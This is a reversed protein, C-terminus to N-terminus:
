CVGWSGGFGSDLGSPTEWRPNAEARCSSCLRSNRNESQAGELWSPLESMQSVGECLGPAPNSATGATSTLTRSAGSALGLRAVHMSNTGQSSEQRFKQMSFHLVPVLHLKICSHQDTNTIVSGPTRASAALIAHDLGAVCVRLCSNASFEMAGPLGCSSRLAVNHLYVTCRLSARQRIMAAANGSARSVSGNRRFNYSVWCVTKVSGGDMPTRVASPAPVRNRAITTFVNTAMEYRLVFRSAYGAGQAPGSRSTARLVASHIKTPTPTNNDPHGQSSCRGAGPPRRASARHQRLGTASKQVPRRRRWHLGGCSPRTQTSEAESAGSGQLRPPSTGPARVAGTATGTIVPRWNSVLDYRAAFTSPSADGISSLVACSTLSHSTM